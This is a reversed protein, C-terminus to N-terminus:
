PNIYKSTTDNPSFKYLTGGEVKGHYRSIKNTMVSIIRAVIENQIEITGLNNKHQM